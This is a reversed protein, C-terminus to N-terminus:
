DPMRWAAGCKRCQVQLWASELPAVAAAAPSPKADMGTAVIRFRGYARCDPCSSREGYREARRLITIYSRWSFWGVLAAGFVIALMWAARWGHRAFNVSELMAAVTLGCLFCTVLAAHCKILEREYWKRFGLKRISATPDM